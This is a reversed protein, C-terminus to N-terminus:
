PSRRSLLASLTMAMAGLRNSGSDCGHAAEHLAMTVPSTRVTNTANRNPEFRSASVKGSSRIQSTETAECLLELSAAPTHMMSRGLQDCRIRSGADPVSTEGRILAPALSRDARNSAMRAPCGHPPALFRVSTLERSRGPMAERPLSTSWNSRWRTSLRMAPPNTAHKLTRITLLRPWSASRRASDRDSVAATREGDGTRDPRRKQQRLMSGWSLM